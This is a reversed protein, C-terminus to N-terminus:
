PYPILLYLNSHIFYLSVNIAYLIIAVLKYYSKISHKRYFYQIVVSYVYFQYLITFSLSSQFLHIHLFALNFATNLIQHSCHILQPHFCFLYNLITPYQIYKSFLVTFYKNTSHSTYFFSTFNVRYLKQSLCSSPWSYNNISILFNAPPTPNNPVNM